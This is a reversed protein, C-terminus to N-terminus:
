GATLPTVCAGLEPFAAIVQSVFQPPVLVRQIDGIAFKVRGSVRWEREMYYNDPHEAPLAPDWFKLHGFINAEVATQYFLMTRLAKVATDVEDNANAAFLEKEIQQYRLLGLNNHRYFLEDFLDGRSGDKQEEYFLEGTEMHHERLTMAFKGTKPVYMVPSAGQRILFSKAFALGFYSYKRCHIPVHALPIDCFCVIEFQVLQNDSLKASLDHRVNPDSSYQVGDVNGTERDRLGAMFIRDRRGLHSRDLLVGGGIIRLLLDLREEDTSLSRGVFHTLEESIYAM